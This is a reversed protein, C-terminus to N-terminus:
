AHRGGYVRRMYQKREELERACAACTDLGLRIRGEEVLVERCEMCLGIAGRPAPNERRRREADAQLARERDEQERQQALEIEDPM